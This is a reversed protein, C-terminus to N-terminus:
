QCALSSTIGSRISAGCIHRYQVPAISTIGVGFTYTDLSSNHSRVEWCVEYQYDWRLEANGGTCGPINLTHSYNGAANVPANEIFVGHESTIEVIMNTAFPVPHGYQDIVTGNFTLASNVETGPYWGPQVDGVVSYNVVNSPPNSMTLQYNILPDVTAGIAPRVQLYITAGASPLTLSITQGNPALNVWTSGSAVQLTHAASTLRVQM